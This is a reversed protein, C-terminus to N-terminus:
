IEFLLRGPMRCGLYDPQVTTLLARCPVGCEAAVIAVASMRRAYLGRWQGYGLKWRERATPPPPASMMPRVVAHPFLSRLEAAVQEIGVEEAHLMDLDHRGNYCAVWKGDRVGIEIVTPTQEPADWRGKVKPTETTKTKNM